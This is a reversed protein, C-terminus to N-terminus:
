HPEGRGGYMCASSTGKAKHIGPVSRLGGLHSDCEKVCMDSLLSTEISLTHDFTGWLAHCPLWEWLTVPGKDCGSAGRAETM